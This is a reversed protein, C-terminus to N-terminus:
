IFHTLLEFKPEFEADPYEFIKFCIVQWIQRITTLSFIM